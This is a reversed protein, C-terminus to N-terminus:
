ILRSYRDVHALPRRLSEKLIIEIRKAVFEFVQESRVANDLVIDICHGTDCITEQLQRRREFRMETHSVRQELVQDCRWVHKVRTGARTQPRVEFTADDEHCNETPVAAPFRLPVGNNQTITGAPHNPNPGQNVLQLVLSVIETRNCRARPM